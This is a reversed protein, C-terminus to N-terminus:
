DSRQPSSWRRLTIGLWWGALIGLLNAVLDHLEWSRGPIISQLSETLLAYGILAVLYVPTGPSNGPSRAWCVLMALLQFALLHQWYDAISRAMAAEVAPEFAGLYWLPSPALLTHSLALVYIGTLAWRTKPSALHNM